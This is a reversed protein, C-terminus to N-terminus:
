FTEVSGLLRRLRLRLRRPDTVATVVVAEEPKIGPVFRRELVSAENLSVTAGRHLGHQPATRLSGSCFPRVPPAADGASFDPFSLSM